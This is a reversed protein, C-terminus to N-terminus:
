DDRVVDVDDMSFESLVSREFIGLHISVKSGQVKYVEGRMGKFPGGNIFVNDGVSINKSANKKEVDRVMLVDKLNKGLCKGLYRGVFPCSNIQHLINLDDSHRLFLYSSYLPIKRKIIKGARSRFEKTMMPYLIEEVGPVNATLFREVFTFKSSNILWIHWESSDLKNNM